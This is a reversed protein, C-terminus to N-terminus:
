QCFCRHKRSRPNDFHYKPVYYRMDAMAREVTAEFVTEVRVIGNPNYLLTDAMKRVLVSINGAKFKASKTSVLTLANIEQTIIGNRALITECSVYAYDHIMAVALEVPDLKSIEITSYLGKHVTILIGKAVYRKITTYLTNRDSVEWLLALDQTHFLKRDSKILTDLRYM